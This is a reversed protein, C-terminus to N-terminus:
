AETSTHDTSRVGEAQMTQLIASFRQVKQVVVELDDDGPRAPHPAPWWRSYVSLWEHRAESSAFSLLDDDIESAVRELKSRLEEAQGRDRMDEDGPSKLLLSPSAREPRTVGSTQLPIGGPPARTAWPGM